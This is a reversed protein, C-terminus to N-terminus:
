GRRTELSADVSLVEVGAAKAISVMHATGRGGPFAVVLDPDFDDLMRQNRILGAGKGHKRWDAPYARCPVGFLQAWRGAFADAGQADGHCMEEIRLKSMVDSFSFWDSYDRGGCVLVRLPYDSVATM